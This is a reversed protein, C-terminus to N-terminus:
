RLKAEALLSLPALVFVVWPLPFAFIGIGVLVLLGTVLAKLSRPQAKALKIGTSIILGCAVATVGRLAGQVAELHGYHGYLTAFGIAVILPFLFLGLSAAIAGRFGCFRYGLMASFNTVNAGPLIQGLALLEAFEQPNLWKRKEVIEAYVWPMCGGFGQLGIKSFTIFLEKPRVNSDPLDLSLPM